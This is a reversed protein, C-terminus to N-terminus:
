ATIRSRRMTPHRVTLTTAYSAREWGYTWNFITVVILTYPLFLLLTLWVNAKQYGGWTDQLVNLGARGYHAPEINISSSGAHHTHELTKRKCGFHCSTVPYAKGGNTSIRRRRLKLLSPQTDSCEVTVTWPM